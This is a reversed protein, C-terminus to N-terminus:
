TAGRVRNPRQTRQSSRAGQWLRSTSGRRSRPASSLVPTTFLGRVLVSTVFAPCVRSVEETFIVVNLYDSGQGGYEEPIGLGMFGAEAAKEYLEKPIENRQEIEKVRPELYREVFQRVTKRFLEHDENLEVRFDLVSDFPLM